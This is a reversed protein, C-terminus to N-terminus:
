SCLALLQTSLACNYKTEKEDLGLKFFSTAARILLSYHVNV